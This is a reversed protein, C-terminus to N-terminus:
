PSHIFGVSALFTGCYIMYFLGLLWYAHYMVSIVLFEYCSNDFDAMVVGNDTIMAFEGEQICTLCQHKVFFYASSFM